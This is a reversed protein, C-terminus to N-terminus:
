ATLRNEKTWRLATLTPNDNGKDAMRQGALVFQRLQTDDLDALDTVFQRLEEKKMVALDGWRRGTANGDEDESLTIMINLFENDAKLNRVQTNLGKNRRRLNEATEQLEVALYTLRCEEAWAREYMEKYDKADKARALDAKRRERWAAQHEANTKAM